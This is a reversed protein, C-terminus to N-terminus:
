WPSMPRTILHRLIRDEVTGQSFLAIVSIAPIVDRTDAREASRHRRRREVGKEQGLTPKAGLAVEGKGM